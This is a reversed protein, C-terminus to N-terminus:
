PKGPKAPKAHVALAEEAAEALAKAEDRLFVLCLKGPEDTVPPLAHLLKLGEPSRAKVIASAPGDWHHFALEADSLKAAKNAGPNAPMVPKPVIGIEQMLSGQTEGTCLSAIVDRVFDRQEAPLALPNGQNFIALAAKQEPLKARKLKAKTADFLEIFVDATRRSYGTYHKVLDPWTARLEASDALNAKPKGAKIGHDKKLQALQWGLWAQMELYTRGAERLRGATERVALWRPDEDALAPSDTTVEVTALASGPCKREHAALNLLAKFDTAGCKKCVLPKTTKPM